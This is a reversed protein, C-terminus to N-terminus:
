DTLKEQYDCKNMKDASPGPEDGEDLDAPKRKRDRRKHYSLAQPNKCVTGSPRQQGDEIVTLNRNQQKGHVNIKHNSLAKASKCVKGCSRRQFDKGVVIVKCTQQGSHYTSKHDSLAKVSKCVKGCPRQQFGEGVVIVKCTQQGSHYRSKHNSLVGVNKCVTGCPRQQGVEGFVIVECTQPGSHEGRRHNSLAKASKCLKGCPRQRGDNGVVVEKCVRQRGHCKSKHDTLSVSNKCVKGCPRQQGDEGFVTVECFRQGSHYKSKHDSMAGASKCVKGCPRQLGDDGFTILECTQPGSHEGRIHNFLAQVNKCLKGCPRQWGDSGVVIVKCVRQGRHYKSKHDTLAISNKCIKGCTRQQGDDGFLIVECVRQGSHYKSKHDTLAVSNKCIKGCPRQEDDEGYIIVECTKQGSHYKNKHATLARANKCFKGCPRKQGDKGVETLDCVKQGTHNDKHNRLVGPSKFAKRCPHQQGDKGAEIVECNKQDSDAKAQAAGTRSFHPQSQDLRSSRSTTQQTESHKLTFAIEDEKLLRQLDLSGNIVSFDETIAFLHGLMPVDSDLSETAGIANQILDTLDDDIGYFQSDSDFPLQIDSFDNFTKCLPNQGSEMANAPDFNRMCSSCHGTALHVCSNKLTNLPWEAPESSESLPHLQCFGHCPHIFCNLGLTHLHQQDGGNGGSYDNNLPRIISSIPLLTAKSAPQSSSESSQYQPSNEGSGFVATITAFPHNGETMISTVQQEITGFLRKDPNWYNKLFWVVAVLVELPLWLYLTAIRPGVKTTVFLEYAILLNGAYLWQWSISEIITKEIGYDHSRHRKKDTVLDPEVYDNIYAIDSLNGSLTRWDHKISFNQKPSGTDQELEVIFRRTLSGAQCIVSM